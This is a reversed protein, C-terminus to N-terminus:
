ADANRCRTSSWASDFLGAGIATFTGYGPKGDQGAIDDWRGEPLMGFEDASHAETYRLAQGSAQIELYRACYDDDGFAFFALYEEIGATNGSSCYLYYRM